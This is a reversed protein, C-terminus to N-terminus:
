YDLAYYFPAILEQRSSWRGNGHQSHPIHQIPDKVIRFPSSPPLLPGNMIPNPPTALGIRFLLGRGDDLARCLSLNDAFLRPKGLTRFCFVESMKTFMCKHKSLTLSYFNMLLLTPFLTLM